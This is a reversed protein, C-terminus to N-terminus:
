MHNRLETPTIGILQKFLKNFSTLSTFGCEFAIDMVTKDTDKLLEVAKEIRTASLFNYPSVGTVTKFTSSLYSRSMAASKAIDDLSIPRQYNQKIFDTAKQIHRLGAVSPGNCTDDTDIMEAIMNIAKIVEIRTNFIDATDESKYLEALKKFCLIINDDTIRQVIPINPNSLAQIKNLPIYDSCINWLYYSSLQINFSTFTDSAISPICHQENSRIILLDGPGVCYRKNGLMYEGNGSLILGLETETHYHNIYRAQDKTKSSYYLSFIFQRSMETFYKKKM